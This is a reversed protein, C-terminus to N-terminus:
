QALLKTDELFKIVTTYPIAVTSIGDKDTFVEALENLIIEAQEKTM